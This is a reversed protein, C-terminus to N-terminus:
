CVPEVTRAWGNTSISNGDLANPGNKTWEEQKPRIQGVIWLSFWFSAKLYLYFQNILPKCFQFKPRKKFALKIGEGTTYLAGEISRNPQVGFTQCHLYQVPLFSVLTSVHRFHWRYVVLIRTIIAHQKWAM